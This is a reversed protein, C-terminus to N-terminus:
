LGFNNDCIQIMKYRKIYMIYMVNTDTAITAEKASFIFVLTYCNKSLPYFPIFLSM